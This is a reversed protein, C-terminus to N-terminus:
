VDSLQGHTSNAWQRKKGAGMGERKTSHPTKKTNTKKKKRETKQNSFCLGQRAQLRESNSRFIFSEDPGVQYFQALWDGFNILGFSLSSPLSFCFCFAGSSTRIKL